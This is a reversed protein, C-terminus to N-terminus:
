EIVRDARLLVLQPITVGLAKATKLNVVLDFKTPQEMPLEGPKAGKFIKGVYIGAGRWLDTDNAGYTLLFGAEAYQATASATPLRNKLALEAIQHRRAGLFGDHGVIVSGADRQAMTAFANEIEIATQAELALVSKGASQAAAQVSKLTPIHSSNAPNMLVAVKSMKPAVSLLLEFHKASIEVQLNSMGTINGGPRALSAVLGNGVPDGAGAVIIPITATANKLALTAPTGSSIIADMKLRVLDAAM